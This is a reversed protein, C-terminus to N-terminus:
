KELSEIRYKMEIIETPTLETEEYEALRMWADRDSITCDVRCVNGDTDLVTLRDM